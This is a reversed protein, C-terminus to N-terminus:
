HEVRPSLFIWENETKIELKLKVQYSIASQSKGIHLLWM